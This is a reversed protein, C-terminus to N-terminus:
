TSPSTEHDASRALDIVHDVQGLGAEAHTIWVVSRGPQTLVEDAVQAATASDLHATPEDLVLVPQEALLSRAIALRAREGGSIAAGQATAGLHTHLGRPLADLWAGLHARRLAQEVEDDTSGPRALRVNEVVTSAFVHPDDDVLGVRERVTAAALDRYDVGDLSIRGADPDLFRLLLAALTSKGSGSPGVVAIRDGPALVLDPLCREHAYPAETSVTSGLPPAQPTPTETIAPPQDALRALRAAAARGRAAAAGADAMSTTAEALAVPLLLLLALVPGSLSGSAVDDRLLLALIALALGACVLVVARAAGLWTTATRAAGALEAGRAAIADYARQEAGWTRLEGATQVAEVVADSLAARATVGTQEARAAGTRALAFVAAAALVDLLVVVGAVPRLLAAVIVALAAVVVYSRVPLRVRLETDLVADVDDVVAALADGRRGIRGPVLPVLADYVDVRRRALLRLARDHSWLREVYRLAPRALGFTRVGVMAVTLTLIAPQADARVILWGATATLAVGCASALGGLLASGWGSGISRPTPADDVQMGVTASSARARDRGAGDTGVGPGADDGPPRLDIVRTALAVLTPRHAVLVVTRSRAWDSVTAAIIQETEVDLHATPEDLLVFPRGSLGVRALALRAREGASLGRGDEALDADLGGPLAAIRSDLAVARLAEWLETDTATPRALRLNDGISGAVFVPRQPLYAVQEPAPRNARGSTPELEGALIRLLTSKGAGSPGVIATVGPEAVDLSVPALAPTSRGPYTLTVDDAAFGDLRTEIRESASAVRGGPDSASAVRGGLADVAEFTAVGEAAAHFESGARRLPWYAEPALLLVVLATHLSIHGAALRVGVTVAVLAVSITAVTELIASSAFAIRLTALSAIRYRETVSAITRSQAEARRFAVLTPLGRMVDLFHGSLAELARWQKTARDRTALGVLAGFLPILPLTCVVILGSLPDLVAIVILTLVPLVAALVLAPVYRTLYPEAASVGRTALVAPESAGGDADTRSSGLITGVVRRRMSAGVVGAARAAAVDGIWGLLGRAAFMGAAGLAWPLATRHDILALVLGTVVFAQGVLVLGTAIGAASVVLLPRRAPALQARLRPDSPRV